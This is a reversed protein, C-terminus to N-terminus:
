KFDLSAERNLIPVQIIGLFHLGFILVILGSVYGMETQYSLFFTGLAAAALGLMVFVTSLGLVFSISIFTLSTTRNSEFPKKKLSSVSSGAMFALYPPVIPLVCPSLFSFIGATFSILMSMLFSVETLEQAFM